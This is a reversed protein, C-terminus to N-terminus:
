LGEIQTARNRFDLVDAFGKQKVLGDASVGLAVPNDSRRIVVLVREPFCAFMDAVVVVQGLFIGGVFLFFPSAPFLVLRACGVLLKEDPCKPATSKFCCRTVSKERKCSARPTLRNSRAEVWNKRGVLRAEGKEKPM